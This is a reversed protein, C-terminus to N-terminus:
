FLLPFVFFLTSARLLLIESNQLISDQYIFNLDTGLQYYNSM